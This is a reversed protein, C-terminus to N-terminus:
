SINAQCAKHQKEGTCSAAQVPAAGIAAFTMIAGRSSYPKKFLQTHARVAMWQPRRYGPALPRHWWRGIDCYPFFHVVAACTLIQVRDAYAHTRAPRARPGITQVRVGRADSNTSYAACGHNATYADQSVGSSPM